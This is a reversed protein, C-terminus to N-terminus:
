FWDRGELGGGSRTDWAGALSPPSMGSFPLLCCGWSQKNGKHATQRGYMNDAGPEGTKSCPGKCSLCSCTLPSDARRALCQGAVTVACLASSPPGPLLYHNTPHPRHCLHNVVDLTFTKKVTNQLSAIYERNRTNVRTWWVSINQLHVFPEFSRWKNPCFM